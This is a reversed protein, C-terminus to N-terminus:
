HVLANRQSCELSCPPKSFKATVTCKSTKSKHWWGHQWCGLFSDASGRPCLVSLESEDGSKRFCANLGRFISDSDSSGVCSPLQRYRLLFKSLVRPSGSDDPSCHRTGLTYEGSSGRAVGAFAVHCKKRSDDWNRHELQSKGFTM